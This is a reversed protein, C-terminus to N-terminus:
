KELPGGENEVYIVGSAQPGVIFFPSGVHCGVEIYYQCNAKM